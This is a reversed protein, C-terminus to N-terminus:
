GTHTPQTSEAVSNADTDSWIDRSEREVVEMAEAVEELKAVVDLVGGNVRDFYRDNAERRERALALDKETEEDLNRPSSDDAPAPDGSTTVTNRSGKRVSSPKGLTGKGDSGDDDAESRAWAQALKLQKTRLDELAKSHKEGFVHESTVASLEVESLANQMEQWIADSRDAEGASQKRSLFPSTSGPTELVGSQRSSRHRQLPPRQSTGPSSLPSADHFSPGQFLAPPPLRQTSVRRLHEMRPAADM